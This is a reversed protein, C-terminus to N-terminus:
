CPSYVTWGLQYLADHAAADVSTADIEFSENGDTNKRVVFTQTSQGAPPESTRHTTGARATAIAERLTECGRVMFAGDCAGNSISWRSTERHSIHLTDHKALWDLLATDDVPQTEQPVAVDAGGLLTDLSVSVSEARFGTHHEFAYLHATDGFVALSKGDFPVDTTLAKAEDQTLEVCEEDDLREALTDGCTEPITFGGRLDVVVHRYGCAKVTERAKRITKRMADTLTWVFCAPCPVCLSERAMEAKLAFIKDM